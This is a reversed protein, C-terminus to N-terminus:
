KKELVALLTQTHEPGGHHIEKFIFNNQIDECMQETLLPSSFVGTDKFRFITENVTFNDYGYWGITTEHQIDEMFYYGGSKLIPISRWLTYLMHEPYHSGDEVIFDLPRSLSSSIKNWSDESGQDAYFFNVGLSFLQELVEERPPNGWFNDVCYLNINKFYSLWLRPSAVPFRKDCIGIELFEVPTDSERFMNMYKEYITTYGLTYHKNFKEGWSLTMKDATGKDTEYINALESLTKSADYLQMNSNTKPYFITDIKSM